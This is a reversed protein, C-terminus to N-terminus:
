AASVRAAFYVAKRLILLKWLIERFIVIKANKYM